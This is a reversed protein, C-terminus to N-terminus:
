EEEANFEGQHEPNGLMKSKNGDHNKEEDDFHELKQNSTCLFTLPGYYFNIRTEVDKWNLWWRSGGSEVMNELSGGGDEYSM